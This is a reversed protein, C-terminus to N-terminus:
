KIFDANYIDSSLGVTVVTSLTLKNGAVSGADTTGVKLVYNSGDTTVTYTNTITQTSNGYKIMYNIAATSNDKATVVASGTAGTLVTTGKYVKSLTYTGIIKQALQPSTEAEDTKCSVLVFGLIVFLFLKKM